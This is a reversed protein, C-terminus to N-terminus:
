VEHIILWYHNMYHSPATLCCAMVQALTSRSRQWWIADSPWLSNIGIAGTSTWLNINMKTCCQHLNWWIGPLNIVWFADKGGPGLNCYSVPAHRWAPPPPACTPHMVLPFAHHYDHSSFIIEPTWVVGNIKDLFKFHNEPSSEVCSTMVHVKRKMFHYLLIMICM